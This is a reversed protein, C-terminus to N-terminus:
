RRKRRLVWMVGLGLVGLSLTTPEPIVNGSLTVDDIQGAGFRLSAIVDVTFTGDPNAPFDVAFNFPGAPSTLAGGATVNRYAVTYSKSDFDVDLAFELTDGEPFAAAPQSGGFYHWGVAGGINAFVEISPISSGANNLQVGLPTAGNVGDNSLFVGLAGFGFGESALSNASILLSANLDADPTGDAAVTIVDAKSVDAASFPGLNSNTRAYRLSQGGALPAAGSVEVTGNPTAAYSNVVWGDQGVVGAAAYPPNEFDLTVASAVSGSGAVCLAVLMGLVCTLGVGSRVM